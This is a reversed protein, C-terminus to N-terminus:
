QKPLEELIEMDLIFDEDDEILPSGTNDIAWDNIAEIAADAMEGHEKCMALVESRHWREQTIISLYIATLAKTLGQIVITASQRHKESTTEISPMVTQAIPKHNDETDDFIASLIVKSKATEEEYASVLSMDLTLEPTEPETTEPAKPALKTPVEKILEFDCGSKIISDISFYPCKIDSTFQMEDFGIGNYIQLAEKAADDKISFMKAGVVLATRIAKALGHKNIFEIDQVSFQKNIRNTILFLLYSYLPKRWEHPVPNSGNEMIKELYNLVKGDSTKNKRRRMCTFIYLAKIFTLMGASNMESSIQKGPCFVIKTDKTAFLIDSKLIVSVSINSNRCARVISSIAVTFDIPKENYHKNIVSGSDINTFSMTPYIAQCVAGLSLITPEDGDLGLIKRIDNQEIIEKSLYKPSFLSACYFSSTMYNEHGNISKYIDSLTDAAMKVISITKEDANESSFDISKINNQISSLADIGLYSTKNVQITKDGLICKPLLTKDGFDPAARSLFLSTACCLLIPNRIVTQAMGNNKKITGSTLLCWFLFGLSVPIENKINFNVEHELYLNGLHNRNVWSPSVECPHELVLCRMINAINRRTANIQTKFESYRCDISDIKEDLSRVDELLYEIETIDMKAADNCVKHNLCESHILMLCFLYPKFYDDGLPKGQCLWQFYMSRHKENARYSISFSPSFVGIEFGNDRTNSDLVLFPNSFNDRVSENRPTYYYGGCSVKQGGILMPANYPIWTIVGAEKPQPKVGQESDFLSSVLKKALGATSGMSPKGKNKNIESFRKNLDHVTSKGELSFGSIKNKIQTEDLSEINMLMDSIADPEDLYNGSPAYSSDFPTQPRTTLRNQQEDHEIDAFPNEMPIKPTLGFTRSRSGPKKKIFMLIGGAITILWLQHFLIM